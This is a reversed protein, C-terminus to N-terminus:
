RMSWHSKCVSYKRYCFQLLGFAQLEWMPAATASSYCASPRYSGCRPPQLLVTVPRHGTAGVDPRSYCQLEWMPAATASSYCTTSAQLQWMPAATASSVPRPPRYSGCRPPQLLVTVPRRGTAGVDPCSYCFQLLGHLGTAGVDPRSYCFQLLGYLGTAGVDPRSYCFQLLGYLGTAGVDPRSYCATSATAGVDPRSYCFQLLGHLGTAGVNARCSCAWHLRSEPHGDRRFQVGTKLHVSRRRRPQTLGFDQCYFKRPRLATYDPVLECIVRRTKSAGRDQIHPGSTGGFRRHIADRPCCLRTHGSYGLRRSSGSLVPVRVQSGEGIDVPPAPRPVL